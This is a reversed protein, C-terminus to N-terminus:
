DEDWFNDEKTDFSSADQRDSGKSLTTSAAIPQVNAVRYIALMPTIYVKKDM